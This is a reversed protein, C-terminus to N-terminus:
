RRRRDGLGFCMALSWLALTAPEPVLQGGVQLGGAGSGVPPLGKRLLIYDTADVTGDGNWDATLGEGTMGFQSRWLRYAANSTSSGLDLASFGQAFSVFAWAFTTDELASGPLDYSNILFTGNASAQYTLFNDDPSTINGITRSNAVTMILMGSEPTEGPLALEYQGTALRNMTFDGVSSLSANDAGNFYGGILGPTTFPLYLFSWNAAGAPTSGVSTGFDHASQAVRIDWSSGDARPATQVVVNSNNDGITFLMGDTMSNVGLDVNYRGFTQRTVNAQTVGNFAGAALSGDNNVHAGRFGAGFRFWAVSTNVNVENCCGIGAETTSLAMYGDNFSNRGVEVTAHRGVFDPRDHQAISALLIGDTYKIGSGGVSLEFDGRNGVPIGFSPDSSQPIKLLGASGNAPMTDGNMVFNAAVARMPPPPPTLPAHLQDLRLTFQQTYQRNYQDLYPSYTRLDVSGDTKFELLRMNGLGNPDDQSNALLQHVPHGGDSMDSRYGTGPSLAHGSFVFDINDHKRILKNWMEEGDNVVSEPGTLWQPPFQHPNAYQSTGKEAWNYRTNDWYMYSHTIVMTRYSSHDSIVQSAWDLMENTPGWELNVVLWDQGNANFTHWSSDTKGEQYFGGISPQTAYYSGPGFYAPNNFGSERNAANGGVGLDHNGTTLAYPVVGNLTSMATLARDWESNIGTQVIDGEHLVYKLNLDAAHDRLFNTQSYFMPANADNYSYWQTDPLIALTWSGASIPQVGAVLLRNGSTAILLAALLVSLTKMWRLASSCIQM